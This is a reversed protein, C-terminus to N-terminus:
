ALALGASLAIATSSRAAGVLLASEGFFDGPKLVMLSREVGRVRKILRVRGEELLYAQTGLDGERFLVDGAEFRFGFRARLRDDPAVEEDSEAPPPLDTM